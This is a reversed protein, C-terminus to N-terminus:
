KVAVGVGREGVFEGVKGVKDTWETLRSVLAELQSRDLVRPQVWTITATQSISDLSGRILKLSLAKMVLYEVEAVSVKTDEAINQFSLIRDDSARRFVSEILTMLCIKQRLFNKNEELIPESPFHPSLSEYKGIDGANFAFLLNKIWIDPTNDLSTLIPHQLLEGFNYITDALLAALSLDHARAVLEETSLDPLNVCALYLLSNKYYPGYEANVKYYDGSVGYFGAWVVSDVGDLGELLKESEDIAQKTGNLDGLLLKGYAISSLSLAYAEAAPPPPAPTPEKTLENPPPYPHSLRSHLSTLFALSSTPDEIQRSVKRAIEVLRLPNLKKEFDRIFLNFLDVQLTGTAPDDVFKLLLITLNHWLKNKWASAIKDLLSSIEPTPSSQKASSLFSSPSPDVDM